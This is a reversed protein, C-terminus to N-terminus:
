PVQPSDTEATISLRPCSRKLAAVAATTVRTGRVDLSYLEPFRALENLGADTIATEALRLHYLHPARRLVVLGADTVQSRSLWLGRMENWGDFTSLDADTAPGVGVSSLGKWGETSANEVIFLPERGRITTLARLADPALAPTLAHASINEAFVVYPGTRRSCSISPRAADNITFSM